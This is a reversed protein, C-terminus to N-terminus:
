LDCLDRSIKDKNQKKGGGANKAKDVSLCSFRGCNWNDDSVKVCANYPSSTDGGASTTREVRDHKDLSLDTNSGHFNPRLIRSRCNIVQVM